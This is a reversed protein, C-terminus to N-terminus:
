GFRDLVGSGGNSRAPKRAAHRQVPEKNPTPAPSATAPAITIRRESKTRTFELRLGAAGIVDEVVRLWQSLGAGAPISAGFRLPHEALFASLEETLEAATGSWGGAPRAALWDRFVDLRRSEVTMRARDSYSSM